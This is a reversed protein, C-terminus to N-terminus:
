FRNEPGNHSQSRAPTDPSFKSEYAQPADHSPPNHLQIKEPFISSTKCSVPKVIREGVDETLDTPNM